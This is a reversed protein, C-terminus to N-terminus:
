EEINFKKMLERIGKNWISPLAAELGERVVRESLYSDDGIHKRYLERIIREESNICISEFIAQKSMGALGRKIVDELDFSYESTNNNTNNGQSEGENASISLESEAWLTDKHLNGLVEKFLDVAKKGFAMANTTEGLGRYAIGLNVSWNAQNVKDKIREAVSLALHLYMRSLRYDQEILYVRGINGYWNSIEPLNNTWIALKLAPIYCDNLGKEFEGSRVYANGLNGRISCLFADNKLGLAIELAQELYYQAEWNKGRDGNVNGIAELCITEAYLDGTEQALTLSQELSEIATDYEGVVRYAVGMNELSKCLLDSSAPDQMLIQSAQRFYDIAKWYEGIGFYANGVNLFLNAQLDSKGLRKCLQLADKSFKLANEYESIKFYATGLITWCVMQRTEDSFQSPSNLAQQCADIAKRYLGVHLYISASLLQKVLGDRNYLKSWAEVDTEWGTKDIPSTCDKQLVHRYTEQVLTNTDIFVRKSGSFSKFPNKEAKETIEVIKGQLISQTTHEIFWVPKKNAHVYEIQPSIDFLDSCSYGLFIINKHSGQSFLDGIVKRRKGSLNLAAVKKLTIRMSNLDQVSGHLKILQLPEHPDPFWNINPFQEEEHFLKFPINGLAREILCDFNPTIVIKVLNAAALGALLKHFLAPTGREFIKLLPDINGAESLVEIFSEFPMGLSNIHSITPSDFGLSLFIKDTLETAIPLGSNRSTGAGCFVVAQGEKFLEYFANMTEQMSGASPRQPGCAM